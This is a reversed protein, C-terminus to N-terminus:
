FGIDDSFQVSRVTNLTTNIESSHSCGVILSLFLAVVFPAFIVSNSM